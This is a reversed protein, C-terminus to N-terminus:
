LRYAKGNSKLYMLGDFILIELDKQKLFQNLQKETFVHSLMEIFLDNTLGKKFDIKEVIKNVIKIKKTKDIKKEAEIIIKNGKQYFATVQAGKIYQDTYDTTDSVTEKSIEFFIRSGLGFTIYPIINIEPKHKKKPDDWDPYAQELEYETKDLTKTKPPKAKAM